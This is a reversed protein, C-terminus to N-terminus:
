GQKRATQFATSSRLAFAFSRFSIHADNKEKFPKLLTNPFTLVNCLNVTVTISCVNQKIFLVGKYKWNTFSLEVFIHEQATTAM